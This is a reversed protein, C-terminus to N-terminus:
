PTTLYARKRVDRIPMAGDPNDTDAPDCAEDADGSVKIEQIEEDGPDTLVAQCDAIMTFEVTETKKRTVDYDAILVPKMTWVWFQGTGNTMIVQHYDE